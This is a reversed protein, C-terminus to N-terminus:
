LMWGISFLATYLILLKATKPLLPMYNSTTFISHLTFAAPLIILSAILLLPKNSFFYLPMLIPLLICLLYELKGFNRGFRVILTKKGSFTDEIFDRMNNTVLIATSLAGPALGVLFSDFTFYGTQLYYTSAVAVPGFFIFVFIDGLGLYALPLPGATYCFALLLSLATLLAIIFGGQIILVSSCLATITMSWFIAKKMTSVSVLGAATVRTPGLRSQTDAGKLFDYADNVLNTTIQIGLSTLLTALFIVINFSGTTFAMASGIIVPSIGAILTKPRIAQIWIM